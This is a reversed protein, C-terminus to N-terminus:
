WWQVVNKATKRIVGIGELVNTVDYIRRKCSSIQSSLSNLDAVGDCQGLLMDLFRQTLNPLTTVENAPWTAADSSSFIFFHVSLLVIRSFKVLMEFFVLAAQWTVM